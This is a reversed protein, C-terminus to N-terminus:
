SAPSVGPSRTREAVLPAFLLISFPVIYRPSWVYSSFSVWLILYLGIMYAVRHRGSGSGLIKQAVVLFFAVGVGLSFAAYGLDNYSLPLSFGNRLPSLVGGGINMVVNYSTRTVDCIWSDGCNVFHRSISEENQLSGHYLRSYNEERFENSAGAIMFPLVLLGIRILSATRGRPGITLVLTAWIVVIGYAPRTAVMAVAAAVVLLLNLFWEAFSDWRGRREFSHWAFALTAAILLLERNLSSILTVLLLLHAGLFLLLTWGALLRTAYAVIIGVLVCNALLIGWEGLFAFPLYYVTQISGISLCYSISLRCLTWFPSESLSALHATHDFPRLDRILGLELGALLAVHLLLLMALSIVVVGSAGEPTQVPPSGKTLTGTAM